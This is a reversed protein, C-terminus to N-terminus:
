KSRSRTVTWGDVNRHGHEREMATHALAWCQDVNEPVVANLTEFAIDIGKDHAFFAKLLDGKLM